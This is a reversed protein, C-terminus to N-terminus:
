YNYPEPATAFARWAASSTCLVFAAGSLVWRKVPRSQLAPRGSVWVASLAALCLGAAVTDTDALYNGLILCGCLIWASVMGIASDLRVPVGRSCAAALCLLGVALAGVYQALSASGGQMLVYAATGACGSTLLVPLADVQRRGPITILGWATLLTAACGLWHTLSEGASWGKWPHSMTPSGGLLFRAGLVVIAAGGVWFMVPWRRAATWACAALATCLLWAKSDLPPIPWTDLLVGATFVGTGLSAAVLSGSQRDPLERWSRLWLALITIVLPPAVGSLVQEIM